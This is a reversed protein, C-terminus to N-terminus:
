TSIPQRPSSPIVAISREDLNITLTCGRAERAKDWAQLGQSIADAWQREPCRAVELHSTMAKIGRLLESSVWEPDSLRHEAASFVLAAIGEEIAIARGGDEFEDVAPDSKRKCHLMARVTPSWHLVAALTFHFVDHYRYGDPDPANDRIANGCPSGNVTVYVTPVGDELKEAFDVVAERPLQETEPYEEDLLQVNTEKDTPWRDSTKALNALAIEELSLDFKSALNALYWLIDGIEESFQDRFLRHADGDRLKKKYEVLLSGVEGAMGLLPVVLGDSSRDPVQDTKQAREQYESFKM